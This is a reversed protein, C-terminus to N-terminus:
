YSRTYTGYDSSIPTPVPTHLGEVYAQETKQTVAGATPVSVIGLMALVAVVAKLILDQQIDTLTILGLAVVVTLLSGLALPILAPNFKSFM